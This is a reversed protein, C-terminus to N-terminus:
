YAFFQQLEMEIKKKKCFSITIMLNIIISNSGIRTEGIGVGKLMMMPFKHIPVCTSNKSM